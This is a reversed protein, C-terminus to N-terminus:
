FLHMSVGLRISEQQMYRELMITSTGKKNSKLMNKYVSFKGYSGLTIGLVAIVLIRQGYFSSFM